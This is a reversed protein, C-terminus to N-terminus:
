KAMNLSIQFPQVFASTQSNFKFDILGQGSAGAFKGTSSAGDIEFAILWQNISQAAGFVEVECVSGGSINGVLVDGNKNNTMTVTAAYTRSAGSILDPLDQATINVLACPHDTSFPPGFVGVGVTWQWSADISVTVDGVKKIKSDVELLMAATGGGGGTTTFAIFDALEPAKVEGRSFKLGGKALAVSGLAMMAAVIVAVVVLSKRRM